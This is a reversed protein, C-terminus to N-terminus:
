EKVKIKSVKKLVFRGYRATRWQSMGWNEGQKFIDVIDNDTLHGNLVVVKFDLELPPYLVDSQSITVIYQGHSFSRLPRSIEGDPVYIYDGNRKFPCVLTKDWSAKLDTHSPYIDVYRSILTKLSAKGRKESFFLHAVEKMYGKIQYHYFGLRGEADKAFITKRTELESLLESEREEIEARLREAKEILVAKKEEDTEKEIAKELKELEEKSKSLVFPLSFQDAPNLGLVPTTFSLTVEYLVKEM